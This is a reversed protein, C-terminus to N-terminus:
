KQESCLYNSRALRSLAGSVVNWSKCLKDRPKQTKQQFMLPLGSLPFREPRETDGFAQNLGRSTM